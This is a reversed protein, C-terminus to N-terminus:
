SLEPKVIVESKISLGIFCNRSAAEHLQNLEEHTVVTEDSFRVRPNLYIKTVQLKGSDGKELIAVTEDTYDTVIKKKKSAVALFTLMHCSSLAAALMEEPNAHEDKGFTEKTSSSFISQGGNFQIAHTRDYTEYTFEEPGKKWSINIKFESM